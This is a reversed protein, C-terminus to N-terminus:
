PMNLENKVDNIFKMLSIGEIEIDGTFSSAGVVSFDSFIQTKKAGGINITVSPDTMINFSKLGNALGLNAIQEDSNNLWAMTLATSDESQLALANTTKTSSANHKVHLPAFTNTVDGFILNGKIKADSNFTADGGVVLTSKANLGKELVFGNQCTLTGNIKANSNFTAEGGVVLTSKANLGKELVFGNQCTLTGNIKANSNFTAEGGVVLTSKANLGKELVFGNQCTLTGNIKASSNFTADGSVVLGAQSTLPGSVSLAGTVLDKEEDFKSNISQLKYGIKNWEASLIVEGVKREKHEYKAM